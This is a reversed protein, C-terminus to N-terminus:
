PRIVEDAEAILGPPITMGLAQANGLHVITRTGSILSFPIDAPKEGRMVRVALAAGDLGGQHYDRSIVVASGQKISPSSFCFLPLRARQAARGISVFGGATLNDVIQVVASIQRSCLAAAAEPLDSSTNVPLAEVTIGRQAAEREFLEKNFVSNIEAPCFLTGVRKHQPFHKQLLAAMEAFPGLSSIGTVLPAHDTYSKGAGAIMPNAVFTFVIPVDRVKKMATQLTPTSLILFLDAGENLAADFISGLTAMDGQASRTKLSYDRDLVLGSAKLGDSIGSLVEEAAASENYNILQVRWKKSLPGQNRARPAAAVPAVPKAAPREHRGTDDIVIDAQAALDAPLALGLAKAAQLNLVLRTRSVLEFPLKAPDEGRMVRAALGGAVKGADLFDRAVAVTAGAEAQPTQYCFLPIRAQRAANVISPFGASTMNDSIQCVADLQQSCLGAAADAIETPKNIGSVEVAIGAKKGAAILGDKQIVSNDESPNFLTGIRRARPLCRRIIEIIKEHDSLPTSGTVNALHDTPSRGAGARVPDTVQAFIIPRDRVKRMTAQLAATSIPAILDAGDGLATDVMTNLTPLDGQANLIKVEYDRGRVLGAEELGALFGKRSEEIAPVDNLELLTIKWKKSLAPAAAPKNASAVAPRAPAKAHRGTEDILVEARDRAEAPLRWSGKLDRLALKNVLLVEPLVDDIPITAPDRGHLVEAALAGTLRGVEHYNAGLDFLAGREAHPPIVTFIPIAGKKTAAVLSDFANLTTGDGCVWLAEIGRSVLANAADLVGSSNDVTAELLTLRLEQCIKRAVKLQAESNAETPNWVVGVTKLDPAFQRALRFSAEVPQMTGYGAMHRPHDLHNQRSIGVGAAYPDSVLGFIHKAKGAKNANAVVQMSTTSATLVLDYDGDTINKAIANATPLDGAANFRRVSINDGEVFGNERLAELMGQVGDDLVPQASHQLVALRFVKRAAHSEAAAAARASRRSRLDSLLLVAAALAILALGLSLRKIIFSVNRHVM